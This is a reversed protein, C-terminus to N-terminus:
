VDLKGKIDTYSANKTNLYQDIDNYLDPNVEQLSQNRLKDLDKTYRITEEIKINEDKLFKNLTHIIRLYTRKKVFYEYTNEELSAIENHLHQIIKDKYPYNSINLYNPFALMSLVVDGSERLVHTTNMSKQKAVWWDMIETVKNINYICITPTLIIGLKDSNNKQIELWKNTSKEVVDWKTNHRIYSNLEGIGDVSLWLKVRKFKLLRSIVKDKPVWSTNTFVDLVINKEHGASIIVDLFKIFDPHLMPEGGTFKIKEVYEFDEPKWNFKVNFVQDSLFRDEYLNSLVKDDNYWSTSLNSTCTRCALNCYNGFAAEIFRLRTEGNQHNELGLELNEGVRMSSGTADEEQYCKICGPIKKGSEMDDRIKKFVDSDLVEKASSFNNINFEHFDNTHAPHHTLFRCCPKVQGSPKVSFHSFPLVCKTNSMSILDKM